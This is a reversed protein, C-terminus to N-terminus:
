GPLPAVAETADHTEVSDAWRDTAECLHRHPWPAGPAAPIALLSTPSQGTGGRAPELHLDQIQRVDEIQFNHTDQRHHSTKMATGQWQWITQWGLIRLLRKHTHTCTQGSTQFLQSLMFTKESIGILAIMAPPTSRTANQLKMTRCNSWAKGWAEPAAVSIFPTKAHKPSSKQSRTADLWCLSTVFNHERQAWTTSVASPEHRDNSQAQAYRIWKAVFDNRVATQARVTSCQKPTQTPRSIKVYPYM